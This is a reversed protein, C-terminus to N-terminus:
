AMLAASIFGTFLKFDSYANPMAQRGFSATATLLPRLAPTYRDSVITVGNSIVLKFRESAVLTTHIESPAL